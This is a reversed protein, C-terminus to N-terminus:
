PLRTVWSESGVLLEQFGIGLVVLTMACVMLIIAVPFVLALRTKWSLDNVQRGATPFPWPFGRRRLPAEDGLGSPTDGIEVLESNDTEPSDGSMGVAGSPEATPPNVMPSFSSPTKRWHDLTPQDLTQEYEVMWLAAAKSSSVGIIERCQALRHNVTSESVGLTKAIAKIQLHAHVLRLTDRQADSLKSYRVAPM